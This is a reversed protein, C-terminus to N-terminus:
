GAPEFGNAFLSPEYDLHSRNNGPVLDTEGMAPNLRAEADLSVVPRASTVRQEVFFTVSSGGPLQAPNAEYANGLATATPCVTPETSECSWQPSQGAGVGARLLPLRAGYTGVNAFRISCRLTGRAGGVTPACAIDTRLDLPVYVPIKIVTIEDGPNIETDDSAVSASFQVHNRAYDPVRMTLQYGFVGIGLSDALACRPYRPGDCGIGGIYSLQPATAVTRVRHAYDPGQNHVLVALDFEQGPEVVGPADLVIGLDVNGYYGQAKLVASWDPSLAAALGTVTLGGAFLVRRLRGNTATSKM